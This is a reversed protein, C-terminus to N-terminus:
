VAPLNKLCGSPPRSRFINVTLPPRKSGADRWIRKGARRSNPMASRAHSHLTAGQPFSAWDLAEQLIAAEEKPSLHPFLHVSVVVPLSDRGHEWSYNRGSRSLHHLVRARRVGARLTNTKGRQPESLCQVLKGKTEQRGQESWSLLLSFITKNPRATQIVLSVLCDRSHSNSSGTIM